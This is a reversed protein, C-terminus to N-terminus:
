IIEGIDRMGALQMLEPEVTAGLAHMGEIVKGFALPAIDYAARLTAPETGGNATKIEDLATEVQRAWEARSRIILWHGPEDTV